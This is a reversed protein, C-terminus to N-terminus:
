VVNEESEVKVVAAGTVVDVTSEREDADFARETRCPLEAVSLIVAVRTEPLGAETTNETDENGAPTDAPKEDELQVAVHLVVRVSEVEAVAEGPVYLMTTVPVPGFLAGATVMGSVMVAEPVEFGGSM